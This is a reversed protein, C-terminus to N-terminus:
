RLVAWAHSMFTDGSTGQISRPVFSFSFPFPYPTTSFSAMNHDDPKATSRPSTNGSIIQPRTNVGTNPIQCPLLQFPRRVPDYPCHHLYKNQNDNKKKEKPDHPYAARSVAAIPSLRRVKPNLNLSKRTFKQMKARKFWLEQKKITIQKDIRADSNRYKVSKSIPKYSRKTRYVSRGVSLGAEDFPRGKYCALKVVQKYYALLFETFLRWISWYKRKITTHM